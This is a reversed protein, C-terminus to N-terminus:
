TDDLMKWKKAEEKTLLRTIIWGRRNISILKGIHFYSPANSYICRIQMPTVEDVIGVLETVWSGLKPMKEKHGRCYICDGKELLKVSTGLIGEGDRKMKAMILKKRGM